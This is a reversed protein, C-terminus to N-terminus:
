RRGNSTAETMRSAARTPAMTSARFSGPHHHREPPMDHESRDQEHDSRRAHQQPAVDQDHQHRQLQQEVRHVDIEDSEPMVIVVEAPLDERDEDDCDGRRLNGDGEADQDGEHPVFGGKPDVVHGHHFSLLKSGTVDIRGRSATATAPRAASVTRRRFWRSFSRSTTEGNAASAVNAIIAEIAGVTNAPPVTSNRRNSIRGPISKANRASASPM